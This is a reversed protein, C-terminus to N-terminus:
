GGNLQHPESWQRLPFFIDVTRTPTSGFSGSRHSTHNRDLRATYTRCRITQLSEIMVSEEVSEASECRGFGGWVSRRDTRVSCPSFFIALNVDRSVFVSRPKSSSVRACSAETVARPWYRTASSLSLSLLLWCLLWHFESGKVPPKLKAQRDRLGLRLLVVRPLAPGQLPVGM